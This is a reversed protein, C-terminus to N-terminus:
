RKWLGVVLVTMDDMPRNYNDELAKELIQNAIEQPNQSKIDMIINELYKEKDYEKICDLVGDTVMIIYDGEYLKKSIGDFDVQNFVGVPLSTSSISEVWGQRKIFTTSAGIKVFQCVGTYLNLISMDITSFSQKESKLVLISNILKIASEEKFGAELFQELLEIVSESEANAVAGTGMGDSLTMIMEGSELEIFSYNDGSIHENEKNIRAVGKLTKFCTDEVYVVTDVDRSIINKTGDAPKMKKGYASGIIAGMEKTTICRGKKTRARIHIEHKKNRKELITIGHVEIYNQALVKTLIGEKSDKVAVTGFLEVSFDNMINSVEFLQGAIAERSEAMRNQWNLNIKALEVEKNTRSIYDDLYICRSAFSDLIDEEQVTGNQEASSLILFAAKYSDYFEQKWCMSYNTCNKCLTESVDEYIQNIDRRTLGKKTDAISRFTSALKRFSESMDKLKDKRVDSVTEAPQVGLLASSREEKCTMYKPLLVFLVVSSLIGGIRTSNMNLQSVYSLLIATVGYLVGTGIRGVGRFIGALIGLMSLMGINSLLQNNELIPIVLLYDDIGLITACATGGIAGAGAGYKYGLYIIAFYVGMDTISIQYILVRPLTYVVLGVLIGLSIMEENDMKKDKHVDLIYCVGRHFVGTLACVLIGEAVALIIYYRIDINVFGKTMTIGATIIGSISGMSLPSLPKDRKDVLSIVIMITIMIIGYKMVDVPEMVTAMGALVFPMLASRGKRFMYAAAFYGIAIPNIGLMLVRGLMFGIMNIIIKKGINEKM